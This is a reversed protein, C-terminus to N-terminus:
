TVHCVVTVDKRHVGDVVVKYVGCSLLGTTANYVIGSVGVGCLEILLGPYSM